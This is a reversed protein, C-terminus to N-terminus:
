GKLLARVFNEHVKCHKDPVMTLYLTKCTFLLGVCIIHLSGRSTLSRLQDKKSGSFQLKFRLSPILTSFLISRLSLSAPIM